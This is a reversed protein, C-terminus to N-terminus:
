INLYGNNNLYVWPDGNIIEKITWHNYSIVRLWNSIDPTMPRDIDSISSSALGALCKNNGVLTPVGSFVSKCAAKSDYTILCHCNKLDTAIDKGKKKSPTSLKCNPISSVLDLIQKTKGTASSRKVRFAPHTRYIIPRGTKKAINLYKIFEDHINSCLLHYDANQHAIVISDGKKRWPKVKVNKHVISLRKDDLKLDKHELGFLSGCYSPWNMTVCYPYNNRDLCKMDSLCGSCIFIVPVHNNLLKRHIEIAQKDINYGLLFVLDYQTIKDKVEHLNFVLDYHIHKNLKRFGSSLLKTMEITSRHNKWPCLLIKKM